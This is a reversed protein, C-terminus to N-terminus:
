RTPPHWVSVEDAKNIHEGPLCCRDSTKCFCPPLQLQYLAIQLQSNCFLETMAECKNMLGVQLQPGGEAYECLLPYIILPLGVIGPTNLYEGFANLCRASLCGGNTMDCISSSAFVWYTPWQGVATAKDNIESFM